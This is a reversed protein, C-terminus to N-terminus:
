QGARKAAQAIPWGCGRVVRDDDTGADAPQDARVEQNALPESNQEDLLMVHGATVAAREAAFAVGEVGGRVEVGQEAIRGRDGTAQEDVEAYLSTPHLHVGDVCEVQRVP